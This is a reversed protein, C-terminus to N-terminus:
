SPIVGAAKIAELYFQKDKAILKVFEEPTTGEPYISLQALRSTMAPSKVAEIMAGAIKDVTERPTGPPAFIGNWSDVGFGPLTEGVPPIDPLNPLRKFGSTAIIRIRDNALHPILESSNAFFLDVEGSLLALTAPAAGKYPVHVVDLGARALFLATVLHSIAGFGASSYNLKGPRTKAYAIFEPLTKAPISSKIGVLFPYSAFNSVPVLLDPNYSVKQLAPVTIVQAPPCFLLMHADPEANAVATTAIVGSGGARNDVIFSQRFKEALSQALMRGMMDSIGGAAYPILVTVPRSPWEAAYSSRIPGALTLAVAPASGLLSRRTLGAIWKRSAASEPM